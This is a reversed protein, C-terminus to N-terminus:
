KEFISYSYDDLAEPIRENIEPEITFIRLSAYIHLEERKKRVDTDQGFYQKLAEEWFLTAQDYNCHFEHFFRVHTETCFMLLAEMMGMDFLPYGYCFNGLDIFYRGSRATIVNGFHLDGHLCTDGDPLSNLANIAKEKLSDSRFPNRLIMGTYFEKLSPFKSKDCVTNHLTKAMDAYERALVPIQEPSDGTARAYSKKGLVREFLLGPREGDTVLEGPKPTPIGMNYVNWANSLEHEIEETSTGKAMFKLMQTPDTMHFYSLSSVGGGTQIWDTLDIKKM